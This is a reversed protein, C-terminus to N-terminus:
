FLGAGGAVPAEPLAEMPEYVTQEWPEGRHWMLQHQIRTRGTEWLSQVVLGSSLANAWQGPEDTLDIDGNLAQMVDPAGYQERLISQHSQFRQVADAAPLEPEPFLLTGRNLRGEDNFQYVIRAGDNTEHLRYQAPEPSPLAMRTEQESVAQISDGWTGLAFDQAMAPVPICALIATLLHVLKM